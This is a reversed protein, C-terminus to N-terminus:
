LRKGPKRALCEQTFKRGHVDPDRPVEFVDTAADILFEADDEDQVFWRLERPFAQITQIDDQLRAIFSAKSIGNERALAANRIFDGGESCEKPSVQSAPVIAPLCILGLVLVIRPSSFV